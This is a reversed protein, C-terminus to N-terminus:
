APRYSRVLRGTATEVQYVAQDDAAWLFKGAVRFCTLAAKNEYVRADLVPLSGIDKPVAAAKPAPIYVSCCLCGYRPAHRWYENMGAKERPTPEAAPASPVLPMAVLAAVACRLFTSPM